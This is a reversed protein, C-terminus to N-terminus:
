YKFNEEKKVIANGEEGHNNPAAEKIAGKTAFSGPLHRFAVVLKALFDVLQQFFLFENFTLNNHVLFYPGFGAAHLICAMETVGCSVFSTLATHPVRHTHAATHRLCVVIEHRQCSACAPTM